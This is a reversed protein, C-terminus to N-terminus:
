QGSGGCAFTSTSRNDEPNVDPEHVDILEIATTIIPTFGGSCETDVTWAASSGAALANVNCIWRRRTGITSGVISPALACSGSGSITAADVVSQATMTVAVRIDNADLSGANRLEPSEANPAFDTRLDVPHTCTGNLPDSDAPNGTDVAISALPWEYGDTLGDCDTDTNTPDLGVTTEFGDIVGDSDDDDPAYAYGIESGQTAYGFGQYQTLDSQVVLAVDDKVANYM